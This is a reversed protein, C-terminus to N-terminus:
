KPRGVGPWLRFDGKGPLGVTGAPRLWRSSERGTSGPTVPRPPKLLFFEVTALVQVVLGVLIVYVGIYGYLWAGLFPLTLGRIGQLTLHIAMYLQAEHPPAFRTHGINWAVAGASGAMGQVGFGILVCWWWGTVLGLLLLGRSIAFTGANLGRFTTLEIRDFLRGAPRAALVQVVMPILVLSLAGSSWAVEFRDRLAQVTVAATMLLSGGSMMQWLMYRAYERDRRLVGFSALPHFRSSAALRIAGREGRVRIRGYAWAAGLMCLGGAPFIVRYAWPWQELVWSAGQVTGAVVLLRLMMLRSWIIGRSAAPYNTHWISSQVNVTLAMAFAAVGLLILFPALSARDPELLALAMLVGALVVRPIVMLPRRRQRSLWSAIFASSFNGAAVLSVAAAQVWHVNEVGLTEAAFLSAFEAILLAAGLSGLVSGILEFHFTPRSMAPVSRYGLLRRLWSGENSFGSARM